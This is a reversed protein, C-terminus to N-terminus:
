TLNRKHIVRALSGALLVPWAVLGLLRLFLFWYAGSSGAQAELGAGVKLDIIPTINTTALAVGDQFKDMRTKESHLASVRGLCPEGCAALQSYEQASVQVWQDYNLCTLGVSLAFAALLVFAPRWTKTGYGLAWDHLWSLIWRAKSQSFIREKRRRRQWAVHVEDADRRKGIDELRKEVARYLGVDLGKTAALLTLYNSSTEDEQGGSGIKWRGISAGTLDFRDKVPPDDLRLIGVEASSMAAEPTIVAGLKQKLEGLIAESGIDFDQDLADKLQFDAPGAIKVGSLDIPLVTVFQRDINVLSLKNVDLAECELGRLSAGYVEPGSWERPLCVTTGFVRSISARGAICADDLEVLQISEGTDIGSDQDIELDFQLHSISLSGCHLKRAAVAVYLHSNDELPEVGLVCIQRLVVEGSVEARRLNIGHTKVTSWNRSESYDSEPIGVVLDGGVRLRDADMILYIDISSPVGRDPDGEFSEPYREFTRLVGLDHPVVEVDGSVVARSISISVSREVEVPDLQVSLRSGIKSDRGYLKRIDGRALLQGTIRASDVDISLRGASAEAVLDGDVQAGKLRILVHSPEIRTGVYQHLGSIAIRGVVRAGTLDLSVAPEGNVQEMAAAPILCRVLEISSDFRCDSWDTQRIDQGEIRIEGRVRAGRVIGGNKVSEIFDKASFEM